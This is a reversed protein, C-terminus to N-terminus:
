KLRLSKNMENIRRRQQREKSNRKRIDNIFEAKTRRAAKSYSEFFRPKITKRKDCWDTWSEPPPGYKKNRAILVFYDISELIRWSFRM